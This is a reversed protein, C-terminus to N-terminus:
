AGKGVPWALAGGGGGRQGRGAAPVACIVGM